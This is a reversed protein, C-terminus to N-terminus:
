EYMAGSDYDDVRSANRRHIYFRIEERLFEYYKRAWSEPGGEKRENGCCSSASNTKSSTRRRLVVGVSSRREHSHRTLIEQLMQQRLLLSSNSFTGLYGEEDKITKKKMVRRKGRRRGGSVEIKPEEEKVPKEELVTFEEEPEPTPAVEDEDDDEMMKRLAAEREKRSKRDSEGEEADKKKPIPPVYTEEEDDDDDMMPVDEAASSDTGKRELKPKGKAFAKFLSSSEKKLNAPPAPISEKSSPASEGVPKSKEKGKGFFDKAAASQSEKQEQKVKPEEKAKVPETKRSAAAPKPPAVVQPPPRRNPRRKVLPNTITGYNPAFELPDEDRTLVQIERTSDSLLQLDKLPHPGISYIHISSIHSYKSKLSELDEEKAITITLVGTSGNDEGSQPMSSGMFPSSQMYEDEGDKKTGNTPQLAELKTGSLLYTAHITGPKKANQQRHFEFLM